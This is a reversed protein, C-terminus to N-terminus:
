VFRSRYSTKVPYEDDPRRGPPSQVLVHCQASRKAVKQKVPFMLLGTVAVNEEKNCEELFGKNSYLIILIKKATASGGL